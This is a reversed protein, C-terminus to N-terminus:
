AAARGDGHTAAVDRVNDQDEVVLIKQKDNESAPEPEAAPEAVEGEMARLPLYMKFSTGCGEESYVKMHGGSQKIFGFVMSLGLGTGKGVEKTTFFPQFVKHLLHKPIGEGTDSVAIMVYDGPEVEEHETAYEGDLYVKCTEITLRGGGGQKM